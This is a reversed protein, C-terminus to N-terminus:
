PEPFASPNVAFSESLPIMQLDQPSSFNDSYLSHEEIFEAVWSSGLTEVDQEHQSNTPEPFASPNAAFSESLPIMQLDQPSSFNDSYLSHEEIFEAVWSSGLTEVDEEHQSNPPLLLQVAASHRVQGQHESQTQSKRQWSTSENKKEAKKRLRCIVYSSVSDEVDLSYEFMVWRCHEGPLGPNKYSFRRKIGITQNYINRVEMKDENRWTGRSGDAQITRGNSQNSKVFFYLDTKGDPSGNCMNWIQYPHISGFQDFERVFYPCPLPENRNKPLLVNQVLEEDTPRLVYGFPVQSIAM